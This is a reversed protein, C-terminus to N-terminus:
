NQLKRMKLTQTGSELFFEVNSQNNEIEITNNPGIIKTRAVVTGYVMISSNELNLYHELYEISFIDKDVQFKYEKHTNLLKKYRSLHGNISLIFRDILMNYTLKTKDLEQCKQLERIINLKTNNIKLVIDKLKKNHLKLKKSLSIFDSNDSLEKGLYIQCGALIDRTIFKVGVNVITNRIFPTVISGLCTIVSREIWNKSFILHGAWLRYDSIGSTIVAHGARIELDTNKKPNKIGIRSYIDGGADIYASRIMGNVLVSNRIEINTDASIDMEVFISDSEPGLIEHMKGISRYNNYPSVLVAGVSSKYVYGEINSVVANSEVRTNNGCLFSLDFDVEMLINEDGNPSQVYYKSNSILNVLIEDKEVMVPKEVQSKLGATALDQPYRDQFCYNLRPIKRIIRSKAIPLQKSFGNILKKLADTDICYDYNINSLTETLEKYTTRGSSLQGFLIGESPFYTTEFIGRKLPSQKVIPDSPIM